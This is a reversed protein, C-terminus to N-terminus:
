FNKVKDKRAKRVAQQIQREHEKLVDDISGGHTILPGSYQIRRIRTNYGVVSDKNGITDVKKHVSAPRDFRRKESPEALDLRNYKSYSISRTELSGTIDLFDADMPRAWYSRQTNLKPGNPVQTSSYMCSPIRQLEEHDVMNWHSTVFANPHLVGSHSSDIRSTGGPPEIPFGSGGDDQADYKESSSKPNVKVPRKQMEVNGEQVPVAKTAVRRPKGYESVRGHAVEARQRKAEDALKADYEKSPPYKPLSSPDCAFPKTLFFQLINGSLKKLFIKFFFYPFCIFANSIPSIVVFNIEDKSFGHKLVFSFVSHDCEIKHITIDICTCALFSLLHIICILDALLINLKLHKHERILNHFFPLLRVESKLASSATGRKSPEIALLIEMLALASSSFDKFNEAICRKYQRRPKFVTAHQLKSKNWYEDSPSGCLKFIKHLQEVETRGPMIPKGALLEALICGSSWLDVAVGYTTAGLLLEPPRYWLTVVRSTLQQKPDSNFFTALGFDAIKLIGNSDILLNSGKIDRHLVGRSHCHALGEFLQKMYCKAQPETFNLDPRAALGTLDHEMYEFVLYLNGSMRSTVIGELKMVNPHDLRRLIQIEKAMFRVSEPDMNVFRVKKLAVIKGTLLDHARYVTSYTGQGIKNLKEFSNARRPLWGKVAEGAVSALWSPWGAAAHERAFGNPVDVIGASDEIKNSVGVSELGDANAGAAATARRPHAGVSRKRDALPAVKKEREEPSHPLAAFSSNHRKSYYRPTSARSGNIAVDLIAAVVEDKKSVSLLRNLSKPQQKRIHEDPDTGKSYICGMLLFTPRCDPNPM